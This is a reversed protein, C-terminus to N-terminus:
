FVKKYIEKATLDTMNAIKGFQEATFKREEAVEIAQSIKDEKVLAVIVSIAMLDNTKKIQERSQHKMTNVGKTYPKTGERHRYYVM